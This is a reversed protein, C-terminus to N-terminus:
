IIVKFFPEMTSICNTFTKCNTIIQLLLSIDMSKVSSLNKRYSTFCMAISLPDITWKIIDINKFNPKHSTHLKIIEDYIAGCVKTPCPVTKRPKLCNCKKYGLPCRREKNCVHGPKLTEIKCLDCAMLTIDHNQQVKHLIAQHQYKITEDCFPVLVDYAIKLGKVTIM